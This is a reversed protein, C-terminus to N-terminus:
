DREAYGIMELGDAQAPPQASTKVRKVTSTLCRNLYTPGSLQRVTRSSLLTITRPTRSDRLEVHGRRMLATSIALFPKVLRWCSSDVSM